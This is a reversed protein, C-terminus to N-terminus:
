MFICYAIEQTIHLRETWEALPAVNIDVHFWRIFLIDCHAFVFDQPAILKLTYTALHFFVFSCMLNIFFSVLPLVWIPVFTVKDEKWLEEPWQQQWERRSKIFVIRVNWLPPLVYSMHHPCSQRLYMLDRDRRSRKQLWCGGGMAKLTM